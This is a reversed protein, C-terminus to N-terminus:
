VYHRDRTLHAMQINDPGAYRLGVKGVGNEDGVDAIRVKVHKLARARELGSMTSGGDPSHLHANDRTLSSVYGFIDPALTHKRLWLALLAAGFLINCSIFDVILWPVSLRYQPNYLAGHFTGTSWDSDKLQGLFIDNDINQVYDDDPTGQTYDLSIGYYSNILSTMSISMGADDRAKSVPISDQVGAFPFWNALGLTSFGGLVLDVVSSDAFSGGLEYNLPPGNALILNSFFLSTFNGNDFAPRNVLVPALRMKTEGCKGAACHAKMKVSILEVSCASHLVPSTSNVLGWIDLRAPPDEPGPSTIASATKNISLKTSEM